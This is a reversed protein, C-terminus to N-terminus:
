LGPRELFSLFNLIAQRNELSLAKQMVFAITEGQM